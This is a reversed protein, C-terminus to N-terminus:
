NDSIKMLENWTKEIQTMSTNILSGTDNLKVLDPNIEGLQLWFM